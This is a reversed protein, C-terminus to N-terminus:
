LMKGYGAARVAIGAALILINLAIFAIDSGKIFLERLHTREGAGYGRTEMALAMQRAKKLSSLVLPVAIPLYAKVKTAPNWGEVVFARAKQADSIQKLEALFTPIFRIATLVMFAFDYPARLKEVLTNLMDQTRTTTLFVLFSVVVSLMRFAMALGFSVGGDTVALYGRGLPILKFLETGTHLFLVQMLFLIFAFTFLGKFLRSVERFVGGLLAMLLVSFFVGALYRYDTYIMSLALVLFAWAMKALPNLRHLPSDKPQYEVVGAM